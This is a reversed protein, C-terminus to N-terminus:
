AALLAGVFAHIAAQMTNCKAALEEAGDSGRAAVDNGRAAQETLGQLNALITETAKAAGLASAAIDHAITAQDDMASAASVTIGGLHAVTQAMGDIAIMAESMEVHIAAIEREISGTARATQLALAKVEHAVVSFGRGAEGARAAEISANLALLNTQAAIKKIVRVVEGIRGASDALQQVTANTSSAEEMARFSSNSVDKLEATVREISAALHDVMTAVTEANSCIEGSAGTIAATRCSAEGCLHSMQAAAARVQCAKATAETVLGGVEQEFKRAMLDEAVQAAFDTAFESTLRLANEEAAAQSRISMIASASDRAMGALTTSSWYTLGGAIAICAALNTFGPLSLPAGFVPGAGTSAAAAMVLMSAAAWCILWKDRAGALLAFWLVVDADALAQWRTAGATAATMCGALAVAVAFSQPVLPSKPRLLLSATCISASLIILGLPIPGAEPVVNGQTLWEAAGLVAAHLWLLGLLRGYSRRKLEALDLM